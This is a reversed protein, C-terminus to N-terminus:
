RFQVAGLNFLSSVKQKVQSYLETYSIEGSLVKRYVDFFVPNSKFLHYSLAPVRYIADSLWQ